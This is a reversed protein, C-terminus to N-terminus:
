IIAINFQLMKTISINHAINAASTGILVLHFILSETSKSLGNCQLASTDCVLYSKNAGTGRHEM